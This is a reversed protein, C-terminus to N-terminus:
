ESDLNGRVRALQAPRGATGAGARWAPSRTTATRAAPAVSWATRSMASVDLTRRVLGLGPGPGAVAGRPAPPRTSLARGKIWQGIALLGAVLLAVSVPTLKFTASVSQAVITNPHGANPFTGVAHDPVGNAALVRSTSSCTWTATSTLNRRGVVLEICQQV